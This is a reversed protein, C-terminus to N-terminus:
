HDLSQSSIQGPRKDARPGFILLDKLAAKLLERGGGEFVSSFTEGGWSDIFLSSVM